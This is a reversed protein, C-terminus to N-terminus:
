SVSMFFTESSKRTTKFSKKSITGSCSKDRTEANILYQRCRNTWTSLKDLFKSSIEMKALADSPTSVSFTSVLIYLSFAFHIWDQHSVKQEDFINKLKIFMLTKLRFVSFNLSRCWGNVAAFNSTWNAMQRPFVEREYNSRSIVFLQLKLLLLNKSESVSHSLSLAFFFFGTFDRPIWLLILKKTVNDYM